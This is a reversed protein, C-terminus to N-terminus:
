AWSTIVMYELIISTSHTTCLWWCWNELWRGESVFLFIMFNSSRESSMKLHFRMIKKVFNWQFLDRRCFILSIHEKPDLQFYVILKSLPKDSPQHWAMIQVLPPKTLQVMYVGILRSSNLIWQWYMSISKWNYNVKTKKRAHNQLSSLVGKGTAWLISNAEKDHKNDGDMVTFFDDLIQM